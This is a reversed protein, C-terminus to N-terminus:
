GGVNPSRLYKEFSSTTEVGWQSQIEKRVETSTNKSFFLATKGKNIKQGSSQEYIDLVRLVNQCEQLSAKCFLLSVFFYTHFLQGVEVLGFGMSKVRWKPLMYKSLSSFCQSLAKLRTTTL